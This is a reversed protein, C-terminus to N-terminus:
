DKQEDRYVLVRVVESYPIYSKTNDVICSNNGRRVNFIASPTIRNEISFDCSFFSIMLIAVIYTAPPIKPPLKSSTTLRSNPIQFSM